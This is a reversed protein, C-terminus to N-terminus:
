LAIMKVIQWVNTVSENQPMLFIHDLIGLCSNVAFIILTTLEGVNEQPDRVPL